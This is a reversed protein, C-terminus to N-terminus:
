TVARFDIRFTIIMFNIIRSFSVPIYKAHLYVDFCILTYTQSVFFSIDFKSITPALVVKYLRHCEVRLTNLRKYLFRNQM